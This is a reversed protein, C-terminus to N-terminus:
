CVTRGSQSCHPHPDPGEPPVTILPRRTHTFALEHRDIAQTKRRRAQDLEWTSMLAVDKKNKQPQQSPLKPAPQAPAAAPSPGASPAATPVTPKAAAKAAAPPRCRRARRLLGGAYDFSASSAASDEAKLKRSKGKKPTPGVDTAEDREKQEEATLPAAPTAEPGQPAVRSDARHSELDSVLSDRIDKLHRQSHTQSTASRSTEAVTTGVKKTVEVVKDATVFKRPDKHLVLVGWAEDSGPVLDALNQLEFSEAERGYGFPHPQAFQTKELWM